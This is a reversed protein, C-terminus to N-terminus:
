VLCSVTLKSNESWIKWESIFHKKKLPTVEYFKRALVSIYKESIIVWM